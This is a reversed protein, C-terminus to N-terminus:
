AGPTSVDTRNAGDNYSVVRATVGDAAFFTETITGGGTTNGLLVARMDRFQKGYTQGSESADSFTAMADTKAKIAAVGANDPAVANRTSIPVDVRALETALESRVATANASASPAAPIEAIAASLISQDAPDSPLNDTKAKIAAIDADNVFLVKERWEVDIGGGGTTPNEVPRTGDTRFFRRNDLAWVDTSTTNDLHINVV